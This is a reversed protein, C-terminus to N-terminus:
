FAELIRPVCVLAGVDTVILLDESSFENLFRRFNRRGFFHHQEGLM